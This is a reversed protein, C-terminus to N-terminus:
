EQIVEIRTPKEASAEIMKQQLVERREKAKLDELDKLIGPVIITKVVVWFVIVMMVILLTEM